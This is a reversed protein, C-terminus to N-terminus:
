DFETDNYNDNAKKAAEACQITLKVSKHMIVGLDREQESQNLVQGEFECEEMSNRIGMHM